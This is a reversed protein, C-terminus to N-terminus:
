PRVMWPQWASLEDEKQALRKDLEQLRKKVRQLYMHMAVEDTITDGTLQPPIPAAETYVM